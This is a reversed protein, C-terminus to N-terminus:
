TRDPAATPGRDSVTTRTLVAEASPEHSRQVASMVRQLFQPELAAGARKEEQLWYAAALGAQGVLGNKKARDFAQSYLSRGKEIEGTRFAILGETATCSIVESSDLDKIQRAKELTETAQRIDGLNACAFALNNLLTPHDPSAVLGAEAAKRSAAFDEVGVATLYSLHMAADPDFAQDARWEIASSIASHWKGLDSFERTRAEHSGPVDVPSMPIDFKSRQAEFEAQALANETPNRLALNILRKGSKQGGASLELSALACALESTDRPSDDDILGRAKRVSSRPAGGLIDAVAIEAAVVWPDSTRGSRNLLWKARDPEGVHVYFRAASRVVFRNSPALSIAVSISRRARSLAGMETQALALDTWAVPNRPSQKLIQRVSRVVDEVSFPPPPAMPSTKTSPREVDYRRSVEEAAQELPSGAKESEIIYKAVDLAWHAELQGELARNLLDSAIYRGPSSEFIALDTEIRRQISNDPEARKRQAAAPSPAVGLEGNKLTRSFARWRPVVHREETERLNM